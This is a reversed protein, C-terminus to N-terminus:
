YMSIEDKDDRLRVFGGHRLGFGGDDNTTIGYYYCEIIKGMLLHKNEWNIKLEDKKMEGTAVKCIWTKDLHEFEVMIAGLLGKSNQSEGEILDVVRVDCTYVPKFKQIAKSRKGFEYPKDFNIMLGEAGLKVYTNFQEEVKKVDNGKYILKSIKVFENEKILDLFERRNKYKITGVKNDFEDLTIMDFIHFEIGTKVENKNKVRKSTEKYVNDYSCNKALLEGDYVANDMGLELIAKEAQKCGKIIKGQRTYLEVVGDRVIANCRFGDLKETVYMIEGKYKDTNFKTALMVQIDEKGESTAILNPIVSNILKLNAGLKYSKTILEKIFLCLDEDLTNAFTQISLVDLDRGSNNSLVFKFLEDVNNISSEIEGKIKKNMKAKSIGTVKHKNLLFELCTIFLKNDKNNSIIVKKQNTSGCNRIEEFIEYVKRLNNM